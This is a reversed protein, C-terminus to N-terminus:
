SIFRFGNLHATDIRQDVPRYIILRAGFNDVQIYCGQHYHWAYSLLAPSGGLGPAHFDVNLHHGLQSSDKFYGLGFGSRSRM